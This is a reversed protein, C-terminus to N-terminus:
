PNSTFTARDRRQSPPPNTYVRPLPPLEPPADSSRRQNRPLIITKGTYAQQDDPPQPTRDSM